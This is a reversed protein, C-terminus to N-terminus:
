EQQGINAAYADVIANAEDLGTPVDINCVAKLFTRVVLAYEADDAAQRLLEDRILDRVAGPPTTAYQDALPQLQQFRERRRELLPSRNLALRDISLRGRDSGNRRILYTGFLMVHEEPADVYPNLLPTADDWFNGKANNCLACALCLNEARLREDPFLDKPRIHEVDGFYVHTIKSECYACKGNAEAVLHSKLPPDKYANLVAAPPEEGAVLCQSLQAARQDLRARVEAPLEERTLRIV